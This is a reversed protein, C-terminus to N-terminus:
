VNDRLCKTLQFTLYTYSKCLSISLYSETQDCIHISDGDEYNKNQALSVLAKGPPLNILAPCDSRSKKEQSLSVAEKTDRLHQLTLHSKMELSYILRM